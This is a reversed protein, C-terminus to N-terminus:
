KQPYLRRSLTEMDAIVAEIATKADGATKGAMIKYAKLVAPINEPATSLKVGAERRIPFPIGSFYHNKWEGNNEKATLTGGAIVARFFNIQHKRLRGALKGFFEAKAPEKEGCENKISWMAQAIEETISIPLRGSIVQPRVMMVASWLPNDEPKGRQYIEVLADKLDTRAGELDAEDGDGNANTLHRIANCRDLILLVDKQLPEESWRLWYPVFRRKGNNEM